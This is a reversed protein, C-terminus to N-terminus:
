VYYVGRSDGTDLFIPLNIPNNSLSLRVCVFGRDNNSVMPIDAAKAEEFQARQYVKYDMLNRLSVNLKGEEILQRLALEETEWLTAASGASTSTKPPALKSEQPRLSNHL